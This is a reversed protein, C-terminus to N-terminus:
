LVCSTRDIKWAGGVKRLTVDIRHMDGGASWTVRATAKAGRVVAPAFRLGKRWEALWDQACVFVNVGEDGSVRPARVRWEPTLYKLAERRNDLPTWDDSELRGLYWDYFRRVVADAGAGAQRGQARAEAGSGAACAVLLLMMLVIRRM